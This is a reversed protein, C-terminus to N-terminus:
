LRWEKRRTWKNILRDQWTAREDGSIPVVFGDSDLTYGICEDYSEEIEELGVTTKEVPEFGAKRYERWTMAEPYARNYAFWFPYLQMAEKESLTNIDIAALNM